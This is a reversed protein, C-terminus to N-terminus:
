REKASNISARVNERNAQWWHVAEDYQANIEDPTQTAIVWGAYYEFSRSVRSNHLRHFTNVQEKYHLGKPILEPNPAAMREGLLLNESKIKIKSNFQRQFSEQM